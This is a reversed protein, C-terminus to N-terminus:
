ISSAIGFAGACDDNSILKTAIPYTLWTDFLDKNPIHM